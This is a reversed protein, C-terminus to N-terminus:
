TMGHELLFHFLSYNSLKSLVSLSPQVNVGRGRCLSLEDTGSAGEQQMVHGRGARSVRESRWREPSVGARKNFTCGLAPGGIQENSTPNRKRLKEVVIQDFKITPILQTEAPSDFPVNELQTQRCCLAPHLLVFSRTSGCVNQLMKPRMTFVNLNWVNSKRVINELSDNSKSTFLKSNLIDFHWLNSHVFTYGFQKMLPCNWHKKLRLERKEQVKPYLSLELM